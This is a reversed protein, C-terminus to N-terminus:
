TLSQTSTGRILQFLITEIKDSSTHGTTVLEYSYFFSIRYFIDYRWYRSQYENFIKISTIPCYLPIQFISALQVIFSSTYFSDKQWLHNCYILGFSWKWQKKLQLLMFFACISDQGGSISILLIHNKKVVNSQNLKRNTQNVIDIIKKKPKIM